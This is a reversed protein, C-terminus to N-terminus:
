AGIAEPDVQVGDSLSREGSRDHLYKEYRIVTAVREPRMREFARAREVAARLDEPTELLRVTSVRPPAIGCHAAASHSRRFM